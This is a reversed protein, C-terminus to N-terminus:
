FVLVVRIIDSLFFLLVASSYYSISCGPLAMGCALVTSLPCFITGSGGYVGLSRLSYFWAHNNIVAACVTPGLAISQPEVTLEVEGISSRLVCDVVHVPNLVRDAIQSCRHAYVRLM